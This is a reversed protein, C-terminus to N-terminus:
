WRAVAMMYINPKVNLDIVFYFSVASCQCLNVNPM